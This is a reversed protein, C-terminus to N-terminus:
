WEPTDEREHEEEERCSAILRRVIECVFIVMTLLFLCLLLPNHVIEQMIQAVIGLPGGVLADLLHDFFEAM